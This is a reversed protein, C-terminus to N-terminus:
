FSDMLDDVEARTQLCLRSRQNNKIELKTFDFWNRKEQLIKHIELGLFKTSSFM